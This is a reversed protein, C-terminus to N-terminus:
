EREVRRDTVRDTSRKGSKQGLIGLELKRCLELQKVYLERYRDREVAVRDHAETAAALTAELAARSAQLEAIVALAEPAV